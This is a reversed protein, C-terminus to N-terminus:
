RANQFVQLIRRKVAGRTGMSDIELPDGGITTFDEYQYDRSLQTLKQDARLRRWWAKGDADLMVPVFLLRRRQVESLSQEWERVTWTKARYSASVFAIVVASRYIQEDLAKGLEGFGIADDALYDIIKVHVGTPKFWNKFVRVWSQDESAYSFFVRYAEEVPVSVSESM